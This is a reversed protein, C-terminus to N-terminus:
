KDQRILLEAVAHTQLVIGDQDMRGSSSYGFKSHCFTKSGSASLLVIVDDRELFIETDLRRAGNIVAIAEQSLPEGVATIWKEM